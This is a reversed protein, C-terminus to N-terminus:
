IKSQTKEQKFRKNKSIENLKELLLNKNDKFDNKSELKLYLEIEKNIDKIHINEKKELYMLRLIRERQYSKLLSFFQHDDNLDKLTLNFERLAEDILPLTTNLDDLSEIIDSM